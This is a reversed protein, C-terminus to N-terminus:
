RCELDTTLFEHLFTTRKTGSNNKIAMALARMQGIVICFRKARTIATYILNRQLLTFHQTFLPIIVADFESGQSKHISISYALVLEDLELFEYMIPIEFYVVKVQKEETDISEIIGIDGNFVNKDYNNRIQMVKDGVKFTTGMRSIENTKHPNLISQLYFNIAQTGAAGKHMPSLVMVQDPKIGCRALRAQFIQKLHIQINEPNDEKIFIYDQITNPVDFAPFEGTNIRHANYAILSNQAQRFIYKLRVTPVVESTILDNLFNGAGVSPLQDIDGIFIVHAPLALAKLLSHALFIDIMSAEDIILFQLKLANTENHVFGMTAANFELLRHLTVAYRGTGETMRKAARGTPAALRYIIKHEDLIELLKKIMTTKGTGPGGTIVSIKNQICSMIGTQQAENLGIEHEKPVRLQQYVKDINFIHQPPYETLSKIKNAVAKETYYFASLTIFHENNHTILKIKEQEYLKHLAQTITGQVEENFPLELLKFTHNKLDDIKAYLHGNSTHQNLTFLIGATIRQLSEKTFGMNQALSDALKFGVGWIDEALRYPNETLVAISSDGYKKYIKTAFNTSAGKEQLFVMINAIERQDSWAEIITSVRKAGVGPVERLREPSKEIIELVTVGFYNVLKEAYAKGIGKIMGSGLYRKLGVITTPLSVACNEAEFQKGFKPHMIWAGKLEVQQGVQLAPTYGKVITTEKQNLQLVFVCFGNESNQFLFKNVTGILEEM